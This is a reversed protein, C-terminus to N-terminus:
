CPRVPFRPDLSAKGLSEQFLDWAQALRDVAQSLEMETAQTFGMRFGNAPAGLGFWSPPKLLLGKGKALQILGELDLGQASRIWLAMGGPARDAVLAGQFRDALLQLLHDRREQYVKRVRRLHRNLEGDRIFDGLAWELVADGQEEQKQQIRALYAALAEPAVLYSVRLGPAILRSLSGMQIVQGGPDLSLLTRPPPDGYSFEGDYDDELIALRHRQALDLIREARPRSLSQGTPFQRRASLYLLRVREQDLLERLPEPALGEGDLPLGRTTVQPGAHFVDWAARNGPTEVAAIDGRKFFGYVLLALSSRSGRTVLIRDPSLAVGQRESLWEALSERLLPTGQPHRDQLLAPGHRKMARQYGRSIAEGPALRPDPIGDALSFLGEPTTSVAQLLSPLDFGVPRGPAQGTEPSPRASEPPHSAVCAGRNPSGVVWGESELVQLATVITRRHVGLSGALTRTGPLHSGPKLRGDLIAQQIATAVRLYLHDDNSPLNLILERPAM